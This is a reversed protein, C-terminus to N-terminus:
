DAWSFDWLRLDGFFDVRVIAYFLLSLCCWAGSGCCARAVPRTEQLLRSIAFSGGVILLTAVFRLSAAAWRSRWWRVRRARLGLDVGDAAALRAGAARAVEAAITRPDRQGVAAQTMPHAGANPRRFPAHPRRRRRRKASQSPKAAAVARERRWRRWRRRRRQLRPDAGPTGRVGRRGALAGHRRPRRQAVRLLSAALPEDMRATVCVLTAGYPFRQAERDLVTELPALTLPGIVALAELVRMLQDAHRGVPVRM